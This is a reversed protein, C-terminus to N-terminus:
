SRSRMSDLPRILRAPVGGILSRDPFSQNVVSGAAIVSGRGVRVGDLITVKAGIWCGPGIEIGKRTVGQDRIPREPDTFVHDEPHVSLYQGVICDSGIVVGGAGGIYAFEGIGVNDGVVIGKGLDGLSGSAIMRSYAGLKFNRGLSIGEHSVCDVLCYEEFRVLGGTTSLQGPGRVRAGRSLVVRQRTLIVGRGLGVVTAFARAALTSVPLAPDLAFTRGMIRSIAWVLLDRQTM